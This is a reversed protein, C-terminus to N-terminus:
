VSMSSTSGTSSLMGRLSLLSHAAASANAALRVSGAAAGDVVVGSAVQALMAAADAATETETETETENPPLFSQTVDAPEEVCPQQLGPFVDSEGLVNVVNKAADYVLLLVFFVMVNRPGVTASILPGVMSGFLLGPAAM